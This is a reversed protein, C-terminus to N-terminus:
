TPMRQRYRAIDSERTDAWAWRMVLTNLAVDHAACIPRAKNGDACIRWEHEAQNRCGLICCTLRRIGRQTYSKRRGAPQQRSM